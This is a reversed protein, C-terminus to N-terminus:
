MQRVRSLMYQQLHLMILNFFFSFQLEVELADYRPCV